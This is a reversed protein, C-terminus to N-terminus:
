TGPVPPAVLRLEPTGDGRWEDLVINAAVRILSPLDDLHEAMRPGFAAISGSPTKLELKLHNGGVIRKGIIYLGDVDFVPEKNGSGFPGLMSIENLLAANIESPRLTKDCVIQRVRHKAGNSEVYAILSERLAELNEKKVTFGAADRHGGFRILHKSAAKLGGHLNIEGRGRASGTGEGDEFGVVFSPKGTWEVLRAAVIGLVGRHWGDGAVVIVPDKMLDSQEIETRAAEIVQEELTRRQRSLDDLRAALSEAEARNTSVLLEFAENAYTLRGAANLRPALQYSIHDSRIRATRIRATRLLSQIGDRPGKSIRHLGHRVLIRNNGRLPVVDAVTGLAVLDLLSKLDIDSQSIHGRKCLEKRVAAIFYFAIGVAALTKDEFACDERQPNIFAFVDPNAGEIRHHDIVLMDLGAERARSAAAHDSTGCDLAIILSCELSVFRDVADAGMGYGSFRDAFETNTLGGVEQLFLTVLAASSVGDVDYDGFVAIRERLLIADTARAAARELDAMGDPLLLDALRPDLFARAAEPEHLDRNLLCTAAVQGVDLTAALESVM